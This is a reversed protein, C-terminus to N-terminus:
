LEIQCGIIFCDKLFNIKTKIPSLFAIKIVIPITIIIEIMKNPNKAIGTPILRQANIPITNPMLYLSLVNRLHDIAPSRM